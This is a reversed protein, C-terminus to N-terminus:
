CSETDSNQISKFVIKNVRGPVRISNVTTSERDMKPQVFNSGFVPHVILRMKWIWVCFSTSNPWQFLHYAETKDFRKKIIKEFPLLSSTFSYEHTDM